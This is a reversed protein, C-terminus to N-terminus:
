RVAGELGQRVENGVGRCHRGFRGRSLGRSFGGGGRASSGLAARGGSGRLCSLHFLFATRGGSITLGM